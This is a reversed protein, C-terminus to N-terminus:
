HFLSAYVSFFSVKNKSATSQSIIVYRIDDDKKHDKEGTFVDVPINGKFREHYWKSFQMPITVHISYLTYFM